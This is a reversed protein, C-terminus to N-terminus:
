QANHPERKFAGKLLQICKLSKSLVHTDLINKIEKYAEKDYSKLLKLAEFANQGLADKAYPDAGLQLLKKVGGVYKANVILKNLLSEGHNQDSVLEPRSSLLFWLPEWLEERALLFTLKSDSIADRPNAEVGQSLFYKAMRYQGNVLAIQLLNEWIFNKIKLDAAKSKVFGIDGLAAAEFLSSSRYFVGQNFEMGLASVLDSFAVEGKSELLIKKLQEKHSRLALVLNQCFSVVWKIRELDLTSNFFRFELTGHKKLSEINIAGYRRLYLSHKEENKIPLPKAFMNKRSLGVNFAEYMGDQIRIALAHLLKKELETAGEFDVHVHLGLYSPLAIFRGTKKLFELVSYYDQLEKLSSLKPSTFEVAMHTSHLNNLDGYTVQSRMLAERALTYVAHTLKQADDKFHYELSHTLNYAGSEKYTKFEFSIPESHGKSLVNELDEFIKPAKKLMTEKSTILELEVGVAPKKQTPKYRPTTDYFKEFVSRHTKLEQAQPYRGASYYEGGHGAFYAGIYLAIIGACVAVVRVGARVRPSSLKQRIM